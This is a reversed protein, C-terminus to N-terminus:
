SLVQKSKVKRRHGVQEEDDVSESSSDPSFDFLDDEWYNDSPWEDEPLPEGRLNLNQFLHRYSFLCM